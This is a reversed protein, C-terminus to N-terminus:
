LAATVHELRRKLYVIEENLKVIKGALIGALLWAPDKSTELWESYLERVENIIDLEKM